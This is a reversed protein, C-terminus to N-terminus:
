LNEIESIKSNINDYEKKSEKAETILEIKRKNKIDETILNLALLKDKRMKKVKLSSHYSIWFKEMIEHLTINNKEWISMVIYAIDIDELTKNFQWLDDYKRKRIYKELYERTQSVGRNVKKLFVLVGISFWKDILNIICIYSKKITIFIIKINILLIKKKEGEINEQPIIKKAKFYHNKYKDDRTNSEIFSLFDNRNITETTM